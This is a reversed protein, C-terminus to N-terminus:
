DENDQANDPRVHHKKFMEILSVVYPLKYADTLAKSEWEMHEDRFSHLLMHKPKGNEANINNKVEELIDKTIEFSGKFPKMRESFTKWCVRISDNPWKAIDSDKIFWQLHPEHLGRHINQKYHKIPVSEYVCREGLSTFKIGADKKEKETRWDQDINVNICIKSSNAVDLGKNWLDIKIEYGKIIEVINKAKDRKIVEKRLIAFEPVLFPRHIAEYIIIVSAGGSIVAIVWSGGAIVQTSIKYVASCPGFTVLVILVFLLSIVFVLILCKINPFRDRSM